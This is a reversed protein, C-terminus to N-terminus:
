KIYLLTYRNIGYEYNIGKGKTVRLKNVIDIFRNTTYISEKTNNKKLNWMCTIYLIQTKAQSVDCLIIKELDM